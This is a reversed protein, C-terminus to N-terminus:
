TGRGMRVSGSIPFKAVLLTGAGPASIIEFQGGLLTAREHMGTLGSSTGRAFAADTDFGIGEDEIYVSLVGKNLLLRVKTETVGAHRAVNTLGEQVIRYVATEIEPAFRRQIGRHKFAVRVGTQSTFREFHWLLAPVLGLDDLMAPRLDLSLDQVRAVLENISSQAESLRAKVQHPPLRSVMELFLKLGTLEQGIHDHLERAISRREMEQVEVLRRSLSRLADEAQKRLSIDRTVGLYGIPKGNGDRLFTIKDETWVTSGDKRKLELQLTWSRHVNKKKKKEAALERAFTERAVEYSAPTLLDKVNHPMEEASEYGQLSRASPSVYTRNLNMDAVWIVDTINEALLRYRRESDRLSEEMKRRETVDRTVGMLGAPYGDPGYLLTVRSETWVTSGGKCTMELAVTGLRFPDRPNKKNLIEDRILGLAKQLSEPTFMEDLRQSMIEQVTYGRMREVSPSIYTIHFDMDLIWIVDMISETLLSYRRESERLAELTREYENVNRILCHYYRTDHGDIRDTTVTVLCDIETGDRKRLKAQRDKVYGKQELDKWTVEHETAQAYLDRLHMKRMERKSYRLVETASKSADVIRGDRDLIFLADLSREFFRRFAELDARPLNHDRANVSLLSRTM